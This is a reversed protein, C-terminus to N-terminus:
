IRICIHWHRTENRRRVERGGYPYETQIGRARRYSIQLYFFHRFTKLSRFFFFLNIQAIFLTNIPPGSLTKRWWWQDYIYMFFSIRGARVYTYPICIYIIYKIRAPSPCRWTSSYIFFFFRFFFLLPPWQCWVKYAFLIEFM